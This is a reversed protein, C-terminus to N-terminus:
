ISSAKQLPSHSRQLRLTGSVGLLLDHLTNPSAPKVLCRDFGARAMHADHVSGYAATIAVLFVRSLEDRLKGALDYGSMGPMNIDLLCVQPHFERAVTLAHDGDLAYRTSYGVLSLFEATSSAIDLNDDVCLVRIADVYVM